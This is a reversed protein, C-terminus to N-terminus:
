SFIKKPSKKDSNCRTCVYNDGTRSTTKIPWAEHCVVCKHVVFQISKHFKDANFKARTQEHVPGADLNTNEQVDDTKKSRQKQKREKEKLLRGERQSETEEAFKRKKSQRINELRAQKESETEELRKRKMYMSKNELRSQKESGTEM